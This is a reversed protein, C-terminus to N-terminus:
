FEITIDAQVYEANFGMGRLLKFLDDIVYTAPKASKLYRTADEVVNTPANTEILYKAGEITDLEVITGFM